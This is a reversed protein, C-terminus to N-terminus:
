QCLQGEDDIGMDDGDDGTLVRAVLVTMLFRAMTVAVLISACAKTGMKLLLFSILHPIALSFVVSFCFIYTRLRHITQVQPASIQELQWSGWSRKYDGQSREFQM